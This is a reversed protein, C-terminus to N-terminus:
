LNQMFELRAKVRHTALSHIQSVRSESVGLVEGIEKLNLDHEYYLSLVMQENKPLSDIVNALYTKMDSRMVNVHPESASAINDVLIDDNVGIDDFGYLHAGNADMLMEQYEDLELGLEAAVETDYAERGLKNEIDRVAKAIMRSNKYVSRPIWDNRRVEDLINGRIRITAYTEFSAGKSSDYNRAAELLGIMGAQILDDMQVTRPLRASLHYAIRKVLVTHTKVLDSQPNQNVNGSIETSM